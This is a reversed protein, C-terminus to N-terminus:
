VLSDSLISGVIYHGMGTISLFRSYRTTDCGHASSSARLFGPLNCM